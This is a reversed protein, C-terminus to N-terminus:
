DLERACMPCYKIDKIRIREHRFHEVFLYYENKTKDYIIGDLGVLSEETNSEDCYECMKNGRKNVM